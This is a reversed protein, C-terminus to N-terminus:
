KDGAIPANTPAGLDVGALSAAIVVGVVIVAVVVFTKLKTSM